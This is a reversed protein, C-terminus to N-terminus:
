GAVQSDLHLVPREPVSDHPYGRGAGAGGSVAIIRRAIVLKLRLDGPTGLLVQLGSRLELSLERGRVAVSRIGGPLGVAQALSVATATSAQLAPLRADVAPAVSHTVWLRPLSSLRAHALVRLVRGSAAVLYAENGPVRRVVLVPRERRVVVRLTHPFSRDFTFGHIDPLEALRRTVDAGDIRLLSRGVEHALAARVEARIRPTGGRVDLTRVAFLPTELALLYAGAAGAFIALGAALSRGSPLFRSLETLSRRAPLVATRVSTRRRDAVGV